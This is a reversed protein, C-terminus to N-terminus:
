KQLNHEKVHDIFLIGRLHDIEHQFIVATFGEIKEIHKKGDLDLYDLTISQHRVVEGKENPISLCGETGTQTSDSCSIIKPNLYIEKPTNEKDFRQVCIINRKLGVQPAAIGVGMNKPHVMTAKLRKSFYILSGMDKDFNVDKCEKRLFLSDSKNTILLVRLTDNPNGSEILTREKKKLKKANQSFAFVPFLIFILFLYKNM